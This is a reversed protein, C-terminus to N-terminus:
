LCLPFSETDPKKVSEEGMLSLSLFLQQCQGGPVFCVCALLYSIEPLHWLSLSGSVLKCMEMLSAMSDMM